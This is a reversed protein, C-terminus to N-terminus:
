TWTAMERKVLDLSQAFSDRREHWTNGGTGLRITTVGADRLGRLREKIMDETGILSTKLIMEDPVRQIAETKKGEVWLKQVEVAADEYGSRRFADNYFNTKASGMGGLTFAMGPKREEVMREVDDGIEVAAGIQIDIDDLTRGAKAAGKKMPGLFVDAHEPIFSTGLWGDALEGTLELAKPGLTALYIPLDPMPPQSLRIPKGEGGPRPLLYHKGEYQVREGSLGLRVVELCERLRGLPHAFSAGHLGEVVQPGSVGLGLIFRNNSVTAMSQSTMAIMSPVRSSIQVIGTGLHIKETKAALYALPVIADMGWAEATWVHDVGLREAEVTFAVLEEWGEGNYYAGGVSISTKM